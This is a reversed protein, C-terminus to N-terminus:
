STTIRDTRPRVGAASEPRTRGTPELCPRGAGIYRGITRSRAPQNSRQHAPTGPVAQDSKALRAPRPSVVRAITHAHHCVRQLTSGHTRGPRWAAGTRGPLDAGVMVRGRVVAPEGLMVAGPMGVPETVAVRHVGLRRRRALASRRRVGRLDFGRRDPRSRPSICGGGSIRPCLTGVAGATRHSGRKWQRVHDQRSGARADMHALHSLSRTLEASKM